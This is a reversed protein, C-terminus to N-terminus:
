KNYTWTGHGPCILYNKTKSLIERRSQKATTADMDVHAMLYPAISNFETQEKSFGKVNVFLDGTFLIKHKDSILVIEGKVHGGKGEIINFKIDEFVFEGIKELNEENTKKGIIKLKSMDPPKYKSILKSLKEYPEHLRNEERFTTKNEKEQKFNKYVNESVYICDFLYSLGVHDIDGHTLIINKSKNKFDSFLDNFITEMENKFCNFGNDIFLLEREGKLIYTNSGCPPEILYINVKPSIKKKSLRYNFNEGQHDVVFNVFKKICNFTKHPDEDREELIQMIKNSNIIFDNREHPNLKLTKKMENAFNLYFITNDLIKSELDNDIVKIDCIMSIDDLLFKIIKPNEIFLGMKFYQYPTGNEQSNIYSINVDYEKLIKLIPKIAGPVDRLKLVILIIKEKKNLEQLFGISKLERTIHKINNESSQVSLFLTHLDVSKNYSVRIINGNYKSIIDSAKLLMGSEDPLNTIYTKEM